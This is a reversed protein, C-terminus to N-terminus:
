YKENDKYISNIKIGRFEKLERWNELIELEKRTANIKVNLSNDKNWSVPIYIVITGPIEYMPLEGKLLNDTSDATKM